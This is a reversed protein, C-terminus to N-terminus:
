APTSKLSNIAQRLAVIFTDIEQHTNYSAFSIRLAEKIKFRRMGTQTCLHGTRLAIGSLDLLTGLDFAHCGKVIFSIIAGEPKEPGIIRVENFTLLQSAAHAALRQEHHARESWDLAEIFHVAADLGFVEAIMPTGAEFKFPSAQWRSNEWSLEEVMNSGGQLPAMKELLSEKGYLIGIGTPGFLKHGSFALFDVDLSQVDLPLHAASQAADLFVLIEHEKAIKVIEEIPQRVGTFNSIHALTILKTKKTIAEKLSTLCIKGEDNVPIPRLEIQKRSKLMQWPVINSHHEVEPILIEDGVEFSEGLSRAVLNIADTTGRTFIIETSSRANLFRAIRDRAAEYRMSAEKALLYVARHVTGYDESYFKTMTDIVFRPKLSTAASDLYILPKGYVQRALM